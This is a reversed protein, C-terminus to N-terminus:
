RPFKTPDILGTTPDEFYERPHGTVKMAWRVLEDPNGTNPKHIGASPNFNKANEIQSDLNNLLTEIKQKRSWTSDYQPSKPQAYFDTLLKLDSEPCDKTKKIFKKVEEAKRFRNVTKANPNTLKSIALVLDLMPQPAELQGAKPLDTCADKKDADDVDGKPVIPPIQKNDRTCKEIIELANTQQNEVTQTKGCDPNDGPTTFDIPHCITKSNNMYFRFEIYHGSVKGNADKSTIDAVLGLEKLWRKTRIVKAVSCGLGAAAYRTACKTRYSDQWKATYAYFTYLAIMDALASKPEVSEAKSRMRDVSAKTVSLLHDSPSGEFIQYQESM